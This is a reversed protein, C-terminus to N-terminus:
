FKTALEIRLRPERSGFGHQYRVTLANRTDLQYRAIPGLLVPWDNVSAGKYLSATAGLELKQGVPWIVTSESSYFAFEGGNLPIYEALNVVAWGDGIKDVYTLWPLFYQQKYAPLHVYYGSLYWKGGELAVTTGLNIEDIEPKNIGFAWVQFNPTTLSINQNYFGSRNFDSSTWFKNDQARALATGAFALTAVLLNIINKM